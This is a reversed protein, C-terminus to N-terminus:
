TRVKLYATQFNIKLKFKNLKILHLLDILFFEISSISVIHNEKCVRTQLPIDAWPIFDEEGDRKGVVLQVRLKFSETVPELTDM